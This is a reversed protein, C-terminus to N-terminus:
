LTLFEMAETKYVRKLNSVSFSLRPHHCTEIILEEFTIDTTRDPSVINRMLVYTKSGIVSLMIAQQKYVGTFENTEFYSLM